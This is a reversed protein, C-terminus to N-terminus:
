QMKKITFTVEDAGFIIFYGDQTAPPSFNLDGQLFYAYSYPTSTSRTCEISQLWSNEDPNKLTVKAEQNLVFTQNAHFSPAEVRITPSKLFVWWLKLSKSNSLTIDSEAELTKNQIASDQMCISVESYKKELKGNLGNFSDNLIQPFMQQMMGVSISDEQIKFAAGTMSIGADSNLTCTFKEVSGPGGNIVCEEGNITVAQATQTAFLSFLGVAFSSKIRM